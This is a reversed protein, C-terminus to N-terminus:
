SRRWRRFQMYLMVTLSWVGASYLGWVCQLQLMSVGLLKGRENGFTIDIYNQNIPFFLSFDFVYDASYYLRGWVFCSWLGNFLSGVILLLALFTGFWGVRPLYTGPKECFFILVICGIVFAAFHLISMPVFYWGCESIFREAMGNGSVLDAVMPVVTIGLLILLLIATSLNIQWPRRNPTETMANPARLPSDAMRLFGDCILPLCAYLDRQDIRKCRELKSNYRYQNDSLQTLADGGRM